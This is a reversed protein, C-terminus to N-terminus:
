NENIIKCFLEATKKADYLASHSQKANFKIKAIKTAKALVTQNYKLASLTATDFNTFTHFPNKNNKIRKILSNLFSLDFSANHGVLVCKNCKYKKKSNFSFTFLDEIAKNESIAFRLPNYPNINNFDLNKKLLISNKFPSIHCHFIENPKLIGNFMDINIACIELIANTKSNFGTTEMDIVVPYFGRFKEHLQKNKQM